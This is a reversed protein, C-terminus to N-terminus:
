ISLSHASRVPLGERVPRCTSPAPKARHLTPIQLTSRSRSGPFYGAARKEYRQSLLLDTSIRGAKNNEPRSFVRPEKAVSKVREVVM